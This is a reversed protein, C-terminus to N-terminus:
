NVNNFKPPPLTVASFPHSPMGDIMLRLYINYNPLNIFDLPDFKEKFERAMYSADKAGLRFSIMTGVNGLVSDRIEPELQAMYQNGLIMALNAKRLESLMNAISLTTFSQFEDVYLFFHKRNKEPMEARSFSAMAITTILLAGLLNSSDHGIKGVALNVLLIKGEDMIRRINLVEKPETIVRHLLPDLLFAGVKNQIPLIAESKTRASYNPFEKLWFDRVRPNTINKLGSKRFNDDTLLKLVDNLNAQPQEVLYFLSARLINEMRPGWSDEWRKKFVDMLGSVALARKEPVVKKLPNYGYPSNEDPVNFYILDKKRHEPINRVIKEVLDGHPDLLCIGEGAQIDNTILTELLTSKGTGTKGILYMHATRDSRKIGFTRINNRANAQAFYNIPNNINM